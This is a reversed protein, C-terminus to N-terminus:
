VHKIGGPLHFPREVGRGWHMRRQRKEKSAEEEGAKEEEKERM